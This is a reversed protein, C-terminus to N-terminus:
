GNGANREKHKRHILHIHELSPQEKGETAPHHRSCVKYEGGALQYRGVRWCGPAHCNTHRFQIAVFAFIGGM